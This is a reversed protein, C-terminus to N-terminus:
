DIFLDAMCANATRSFQLLVHEVVVCRSIVVTCYVSDEINDAGM